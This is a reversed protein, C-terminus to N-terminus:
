RSTSSAPTAPPSAGAAVFKWDSHEQALEFNRLSRDFNAKRFPAGRSQSYVGVIWPGQRILGWPRDPAMPDPHLRRLHRVVQPYRPDLLLDELRTPWQRTGARSSRVYSEIARKYQLGVYLLEEEDQRQRADHWRQAAMGLAAGGVAIFVLVGLLLMGREALPRSGRNM